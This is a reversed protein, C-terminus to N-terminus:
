FYSIVLLCIVLPIEYGVQEELTHEIRQRWTSVRAALETQKETEAISALLSDQTLFYYRM